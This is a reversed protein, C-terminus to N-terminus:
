KAFFDLTGPRLTGVMKSVIASSAVHYKRTINVEWKTSTNVNFRPRTLAVIREEPSCGLVDRAYKELYRNLKKWARLNDPGVGWFVARM